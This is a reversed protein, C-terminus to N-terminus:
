SVDLTHFFYGGTLDPGYDACLCVTRGVQLLMMGIQEPIRYMPHFGKERDHPCSAPANLACESFIGVQHDPDPFIDQLLARFAVAGNGTGHDFAEELFPILFHGTIEGVSEGDGIGTNVPFGRLAHQGHLHM